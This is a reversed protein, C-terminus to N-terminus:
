DNFGLDELKEIAEQAMTGHSQKFAHDRGARLAEAAGNKDGVNARADGLAILAAAWDPQSKVCLEYQEISKQYDGADFYANALSFRPLGSEPHLEILKLFRQIRPDSM